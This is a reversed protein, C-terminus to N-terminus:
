TRERMQQHTEQGKNQLELSYAYFSELAVLSLQFRDKESDIIKVSEMKVLELERIATKVCNDVTRKIEEGRQEIVKQLNKVENLLESRTVDTKAM